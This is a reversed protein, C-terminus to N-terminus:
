FQVKVTATQGRQLRGILSITKEDRNPLRVILTDTCLPIAKFYEGEIKFTEGNISGEGSLHNGNEDELKVLIGALKPKPAFRVNISVESDLRVRRTQQLYCKHTSTVTYVNPELELGGSRLAQQDLNPISEGMREIRIAHGGVVQLTGRFSELKGIYRRKGSASKRLKSTDVRFQKPVFGRKVMFGTIVGLPLLKECAKRRPGKSEPCIPDNDVVFQAGPPDSEFIVYEGTNSIIRRGAVARALTHMAAQKCKLRLTEFNLGQVTVSTITKSNEVDLLVLRAELQRSTTRSVYFSLGYTASFISFVARDCNAKNRCQAIAKQGRSKSVSGMDRVVFIDSATALGSRLGDSVAARLRKKQIVTLVGIPQDSAEMVFVDETRSQGFSANPLAISLILPVVALLQIYNM